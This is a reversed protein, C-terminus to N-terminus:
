LGKYTPQLDRLNTIFNIDLNPDSGHVGWYPDQSVKQSHYHFRFVISLHPKLANSKERTFKVIPGASPFDTTFKSNGERFSVTQVQFHIAPISTEKQPSRSKPAINTKPLTYGM